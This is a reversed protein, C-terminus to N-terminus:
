KGLINTKHRLGNLNRYASSILTLVSYIFFFQSSYRYMNREDFINGFLAKARSCCPAFKGKDFAM